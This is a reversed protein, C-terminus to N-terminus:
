VEWLQPYCVRAVDYDGPFDAFDEGDVGALVISGVLRMGLLEVNDPLGRLFSEENCILVVDTHLQVVEIRGDVLGQLAELTNPTWCFFAPHGPHKVLVKIMNNDETRM